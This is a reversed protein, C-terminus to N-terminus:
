SPGRRARVEVIDGGLALKAHTLTRVTTPTRETLAMLDALEDATWIRGRGVGAMVLAEGAATDPVFFLTVDLWRVRIELTQGARAFTDLPMALLRGADALPAPAAAEARGAALLTLIEAKHRRLGDLLHAPMAGAPRYRLRGGAVALEIGLQRLQNLILEATTKTEV